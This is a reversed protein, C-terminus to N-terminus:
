SLSVHKRTLSQARRSSQPRLSPRVTGRPHRSLPPYLRGAIQRLPSSDARLLQEDPAISCRSGVYTPWGANDSNSERGPSQRGKASFYRPLTGPELIPHVIESRSTREVQAVPTPPPRMQRSCVAILPHRQYLSRKRRPLIGGGDEIAGAWAPGQVGEDDQSDGEASTKALESFVADGLRRGIETWNTQYTTLTPILYQGRAEPLVGLISMDRGPHLGAEGLRRYLAAAHMANNVLVATARPDTALLSDAAVLGGREDAPRRLDWGGALPLGRAEMARRFATEVLDLYHTHLDPLLLTIRRHGLTVLHQVADEVAGEFDPDVWAHRASAQTRGFTVFPRRMKKLYDVRPDVGETDAIILADALGRETM